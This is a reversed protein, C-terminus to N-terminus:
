YMGSDQKQNDRSFINCCHGFNKQSKLKETDSKIKIFLVTQYTNSGQQLEGVPSLNIM